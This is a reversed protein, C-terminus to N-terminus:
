NILRDTIVQVQVMSYENRVTATLGGDHFNGYFLGLTGPWNREQHSNQGEADNIFSCERHYLVDDDEVGCGEFKWIPAPLWTTM